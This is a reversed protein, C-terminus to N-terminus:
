TISETSETSISIDEDVFIYKLNTLYLTKHFGDELLVQKRKLSNKINNYSADKLELKTKISKNVKPSHLLEWALRPSSESLFSEYCRLMEAAVKVELETLNFDLGRLKMYKQYIDGRVKITAFKEM